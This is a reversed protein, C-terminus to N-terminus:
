ECASASASDKLPPQGPATREGRGCVDRSQVLTLAILLTAAAITLVVAGCYTRRVDHRHIAAELGPFPRSGATGLADLRSLGIALRGPLGQKHHQM